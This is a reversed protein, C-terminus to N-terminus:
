RRSQNPLELGAAQNLTAIADNAPPTLRATKKPKAPFAGSVTPKAIMVSLTTATSIFKAHSVSSSTQAGSEPGVTAASISVALANILM